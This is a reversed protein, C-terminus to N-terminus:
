FTCNTAVIESTLVYFARARQPFKPEMNVGALSYSKHMLTATNTHTPCEALRHSFYYLHM